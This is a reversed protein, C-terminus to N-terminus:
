NMGHTVEVPHTELLPEPEVKVDSWSVPPSASRESQTVMRQWFPIEDPADVAVHKVSIQAPGTRIQDPDDDVGHGVNV